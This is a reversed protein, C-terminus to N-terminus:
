LKLRIKKLGQKIDVVKLKNFHFITSACLGSILKIKAAELFHSINGAGGSIVIPCKIDESM